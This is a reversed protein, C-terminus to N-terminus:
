SGDGKAAFLKLAADVAIQVEAMKDAEDAADVINEDDSIHDLWERLLKLAERAEDREAMFKDSKDIWKLMQRQSKECIRRWEDRERTLTEITNAAQNLMLRRSYLLGTKIQAAERLVSVIDTYDGNKDLTM